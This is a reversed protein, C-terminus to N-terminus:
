SNFNMSKICGTNARQQEMVFIFVVRIEDRSIDIGAGYQVAPASWVLYKSTVNHLKSVVHKAIDQFM